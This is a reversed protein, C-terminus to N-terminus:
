RRFRGRDIVVDGNGNRTQFLGQEHWVSVVLEDGPLVPKTFRGDMESVEGLMRATIGYTALGHLIPRDFGGRAAFAPDSHLPNRDGTLRYLLAQNVATRFRLTEDPQTGPVTWEATPKPSGGFGGEGRIFVSFRTRLVEEGDADTAWTETVVLAGKGKDVMDVVKRRVDVTGSAPLPRHVTFAQEAHVLQSPDFDGWKRPPGGFQILPVGFTPLVRQEVGATNETSYALEATPDDQGAGVAVAYLLADDATWSRSWPGEVVGIVNRDLPM